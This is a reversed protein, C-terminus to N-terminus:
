PTLRFINFLSGDLIPVIRRISYNRAVTAAYGRRTPVEETGIHSYEKGQWTKELGGHPEAGRGRKVQAQCAACPGKKHEM